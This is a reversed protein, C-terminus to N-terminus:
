PWPAGGSESVRWEQEQPTLVAVSGTVVDVLCVANALYTLQAHPVACQALFRLHFSEAAAATIRDPSHRAARGGPAIRATWHSPNGFSPAADARAAMFSITGPLLPGAATGDTVTLLVRAYGYM